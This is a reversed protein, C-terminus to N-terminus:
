SCAGDQRETNSDHLLWKGDVKHMVAEASMYEVPQPDLPKGNKTVELGTLDQCAILEATPTDADLDLSSAKLGKVETYGTSAIGEEYDAAVTESMLSRSAGDETTLAVVEEPLDPGGGEAYFEDLARYLEKYADKADQSEQERESLTPSPSPETSTSAPPPPPPPNAGSGGGINGRILIVAAWVVAVAVLGIAAMMLLRGPRGGLKHSETATTM